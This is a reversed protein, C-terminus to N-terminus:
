QLEKELEELFEDESDIGEASEDLSLDESIEGDDSENAQTEEGVPAVDPDEVQVPQQSASEVKVKFVLQPVVVSRGSVLVKVPDICYEGPRYVGLMIRAQVQSGPAINKLQQKVKGSIFYRKYGDALFEVSCSEVGERGSNTIELCAAVTCFGDSAFDHHIVEEVKWATNLKGGPNLQVDFTYLQGYMEGSTWEVVVHTFEANHDPEEGIRFLSSESKTGKSRGYVSRAFHTNLRKQGGEQADKTSYEFSSCKASEEPGLPRLSYVWTRSGNADVDLSTMKGMDVPVHTATSIAVRSVSLEQSLHNALTVALFNCSGSSRTLIRHSVAKTVKVPVQYRLSRFRGEGDKYTFLLKFSNELDHAEEPVRFTVGLSVPLGPEFDDDVPLKFVKGDEDLPCLPPDASEADQEEDLLADLPTPSIYLGGLCSSMVIGDVCGAVGNNIVELEGSVIQGSSVEGPLGKLEAGIWAGQKKVDLQLRTDVARAHAVRNDKTDNLLPGKIEFFHTFKGTKFLKYEVSTVTVQGAADPTFRLRVWREELPKLVVDVSDVSDHDELDVGGEKMVQLQLHLESLEITVLLPNRILVDVFVPEGVYAFKESSRSIRVNSLRRLEDWEKVARADTPHANPFDPIISANHQVSVIVSNDVITPIRFTWPKKGTGVDELHQLQDLFDKLITEQKYSPLKGHLLVDAWLYLLEKVTAHSKKESSDMLLSAISLDIHSVIRFWRESTYYRKALKYCSIAQSKVGSDKFLAGAAVMRFCYKRLTTSGEVDRPKLVSTNEFSRLRRITDPPLGSILICNGAQELLMSAILTTERVSAKLFIESAKKFQAPDNSSKLIDGFIIACASLVRSAKRQTLDTICKQSYEQIQKKSGETLFLCVCMLEYACARHVLAKDAGYDERVIRYLGLAMEYDQVLFALDALTQVQSEISDYTYVHEGNAESEKTAVVEGGAKVGQADKPKRWFMRLQNRFGKRMAAVHQNLELMRKETDRLIGDFALGEVFSQVSKLDEAALARGLVGRDGEGKDADVTAPFYQSWIDPQAMNLQEGALSNLELFFSRDGFLRKMQQKLAPVDVGAAGPSSRDHIILYYKSINPDYKGQRFLEPMNEERQLVEFWHAANPADETTVAILYALPHDLMHTRQHRLAFFLERKFREFHSGDQGHDRVVRELYADSADTSLPACEAVSCFSFRYNRLSYSKNVTRIPISANQLVGFPQLLESLSLGNKWCASAVGETWSCVVCPVYLESIWKRFSNKHSVSM